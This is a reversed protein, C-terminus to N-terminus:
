SAPSHFVLGAEAKLSRSIKGLKRPPMNVFGGLSSAELRSMCRRIIYQWYAINGFNSLVQMLSLCVFVGMLRSQTAASNYETDQCFARQKNRKM